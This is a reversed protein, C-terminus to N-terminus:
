PIYRRDQSEKCYGMHFIICLATRLRSSFYRYLIKANCRLPFYLVYGNYIPRLLAVQEIELFSSFCPSSRFRNQLQLVSMQGAWTHNEEYVWRVNKFTTLSEARPCETNATQCKEEAVNHHVGRLQYFMLHMVAKYYDLVLSKINEEHKSHWSLETCHILVSPNM